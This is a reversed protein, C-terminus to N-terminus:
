KSRRPWTRRGTCGCTTYKKAAGTFREPAAFAPLIDSYRVVTPRIGFPMWVRKDFNNVIQAVIGPM